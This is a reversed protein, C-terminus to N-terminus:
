KGRCWEDGVKHSYWVQGDKERRKMACGHIPCWAPDTQGNELKPAAKSQGNSKSNNRNGNGASQGGVKFGNMPKCNHAILWEIAKDTKPLLDAGDTGRLTLQCFFGDPRLYKTNWSAPAEAFREAM